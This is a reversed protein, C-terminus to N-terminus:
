FDRAAKREHRDDTFFSVMHMFAVREDRSNMVEIDIRGIKKGKHRVRAEAFLTEGQNVPKTYQITSEVLTARRGLTNGCAGGIHDGFTFIVGGHATGFPNIHSGTIELRGRAFGERVETVEVGLPKCVVCDSFINKIYEEDM